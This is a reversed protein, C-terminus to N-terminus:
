LDEVSHPMWERRRAAAAAGAAEESDFYGVHRTKGDHRVRAHWKGNSENWSVGRFGSRSTRRSRRNQSNQAGTIARLNARRNDLPERNIHDGQLPNGAELGLIVRHLLIHERQQGTRAVYGHHFYWRHAALESDVDDILAHAVVESARNRLAIRIM